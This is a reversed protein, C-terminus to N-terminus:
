ARGPSFIVDIEMIRESHEGQRLPLHIVIRNGTLDAAWGVPMSGSDSAAVKQLEAGDVTVSSASTAGYVLLYGMEPLNELRWGIGGNKPQVTVKAAEGQTNRLSVEKDNTPSTVVLADVRGGTMSKGFQLEQSLQVPMVTGPALYVPITDLPADVKLKIPGKVTKGDWLSTWTGSPFTIAKFTDENVVPAVLLDPGFMYQEPTAAAEQEGPFALPMSRMIPM